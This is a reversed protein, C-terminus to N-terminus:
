LAASSFSAAPTLRTPSSLWADGWGLGFGLSSGVSATSACLRSAVTSCVGRAAGCVKRGGRLESLDTYSFLYALLFTAAVPKGIVNADLAWVSPGVLVLLFAARLSKDGWSPLPVRRCGRMAARREVVSCLAWLLLLGFAQAQWLDWAMAAVLGPLLLPRARM